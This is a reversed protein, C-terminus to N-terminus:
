TAWGCRRAIVMWLESAGAMVLGLGVEIAAQVDVDNALEVGADPALLGKAVLLGAGYRLAIRVIVALM